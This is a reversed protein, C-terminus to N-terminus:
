KEWDTLSCTYAEDPHATDGGDVPSCIHTTQDNDRATTRAWVTVLGQHGDGSRCDEKLKFAHIANREFYALSHGDSSQPIFWAESRGDSGDVTVDWGDERETQEFQPNDWHGVMFENQGVCAAPTLTVYIEQPHHYHYPYFTDALQLTMGIEAGVSEGDISKIRLLGWPGMVEAYAYAGRFRPNIAAPNEAYFPLWGVAAWLNPLGNYSVDVPFNASADAKKAIDVFDRALEEGAAGIEGGLESFYATLTPRDIWGAVEHDTKMAANPTYLQFVDYDKQPDFCRKAEEPHDLVAQVHKLVLEVDRYQAICDTQITGDESVTQITAEASDLCAGTPTTLGDAFGRLYTLTEEWLQDVLVQEELTYSAPEVDANCVFSVDSVANRATEGEPQQATTSSCASILLLAGLLSSSKPFM